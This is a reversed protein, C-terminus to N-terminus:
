EVRISQDAAPFVGVTEGTAPREIWVALRYDGPPTDAFVALAFEDRVVMGNKWEAPPLPAETRIHNGWGRTKGADDVLSVRIPDDSSKGQWEWYLTLFAVTDPEISAVPQGDMDRLDYGLLEAQGVLRMDGAFVHPMAVSPYIWAYDIGHLTVTFAPTAARFFQLAGASPLERQVQNVYLVVYDAALGPKPSRSIKEEELKYIAQGKFFPEFTTSYWAVVRLDAANPLNNLWAAARDLGEGWGVMLTRVAAAGGGLLPNYYTFYYPWHPLVLAAQLAIVGAWLGRRLVARRVCRSMQAYGLAALAVLPPIAPLIYRDQKKGGLTVMLGYLLAYALLILAARQWTRKGEGAGCKWRLGIAALLWGLWVLPTTRFLGVLAYFGAGPDPVAEGMFFSGKPHPSGSARVADSIIATLRGLPDVWMAPWLVVVILGAAAGWVLADAVWAVALQRVPQRWSMRMILLILVVFVALILSPYKTLFALGALLGSVLLFRRDFHNTQMAHLLAVLSLWMFMAVLADHGLVRSLALLFPDLALLLAALVAGGGGLFSRGWRYTLTAALAAVLVIPLRILPLISPNLPDFPVHALFAPLDGGPLGQRVYELLLGLAGSWMATVGPAPSDFTAAWDSRALAALFQISRGFWAKPEDATLFVDLGPLRAALAVIFLGPGILSAWPSARKDV